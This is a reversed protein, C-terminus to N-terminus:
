TKENKREQGTIREIMEKESDFFETKGYSVAKGKDSLKSLEKQASDALRETFNRRKM